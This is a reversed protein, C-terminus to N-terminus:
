ALLQRITACAEAASEGLFIGPTSARLAPNVNFARGGFGFRPAPKLYSLMQHLRKLDRAAEVTAASLCIMVPKETRAYIVIDDIPVDAGLFDVRFGDRRLVVSVMLGGVDHRENPACGVVLRPAGRRVPYSQLLAMLRGRVYSTAFHETAVSIEHRHWAEGIEVMCPTMVEICITTLDFVAHAENLVSAASEEDLHIMAQYLRSAFQTPPTVTKPASGIEIPLPPEPLKGARRMEQLTAAAGSISLGSDVQHKLWRLVAVDRDSYLRYNGHTRHPELLNYRREWARLTVARIGTQACVSKITFKPEVSLDATSAV